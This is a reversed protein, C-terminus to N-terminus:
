NKKDVIQHDFVRFLFSFIKQFFAKLRFFLFNPDFNLRSNACIPRHVIPGQPRKRSLGPLKEPKTKINLM